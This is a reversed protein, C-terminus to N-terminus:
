APPLTGPLWRGAMCQRAAAALKEPYGPCAPGILPLDFDAITAAIGAADLARGAAVAHRAIELEQGWFYVAGARVNDQMRRVEEVRGDSVFPLWIDPMLLDVPGDPRWRFADGQVVRIKARAAAPLQAFIDLERHIALVDEDQEVVTVATVAERMATAAAAWGMGLGVIAVAGRALRIGIEQSELERPTMSMWSQGDRLLAAMGSVLRVGSWYGPCFVLDAHRIEWAGKRIPDYRPIFLDTEFRSVPDDTAPDCPTM